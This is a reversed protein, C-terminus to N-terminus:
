GRLITYNIVRMANYETELVRDGYMAVIVSCAQSRDHELSSKLATLMDIAFLEQSIHIGIIMVVLSFVLTYSSLKLFTNAPMHKRDKRSIHLGPKSVHSFHQKYHTAHFASIRQFKYTPESHNFHYFILNM